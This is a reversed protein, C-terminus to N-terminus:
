SADDMSQLRNRALKVSALAAILLAAALALIALDEGPWILGLGEGVWFIGFASILVGVSFKLANEPIRALPKQLAVGLAIVLVGALAAGVSAPVLMNATAGVAIVIFVVEIGELLVAKFATAVALPDLSSAAKVSTARLQATEADFAAQEDHLKIVGAARLIAKRLWRMGFLLLLVGVFLQLLKIPIQGLLPGFVIIMVALLVVGGAVGTLASRWGRVTGVALVITLAEVFEVLSALFAALVSPGAHTWLMM